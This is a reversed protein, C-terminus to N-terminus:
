ASSFPKNQGYKASFVTHMESSHENTRNCANPFNNKSRTSTRNTPNPHKSIVQVKSRISTHVDDKSTARFMRPKGSVKTAGHYKSKVFYKGQISDKSGRRNLSDEGKFEQRSKEGPSLHKTSMTNVPNEKTTIYFNEFTGSSGHRPLGKTATFKSQYGNTSNQGDRSDGPNFL